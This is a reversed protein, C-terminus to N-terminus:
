RNESAFDELKRELEKWARAVDSYEVVWTPFYYEDLVQYFDDDLYELRVRKLSFYLYNIDLVLRHHEDWRKSQQCSIWDLWPFLSLEKEILESFPFFDGLYQQKPCEILINSRHSYFFRNEFKPIIVVCFSDHEVECEPCRYKKREQVM